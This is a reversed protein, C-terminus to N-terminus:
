YLPCHVAGPSAAEAWAPVRELLSPDSLMSTEPHSPSHWTEIARSDFGGASSAVSPLVHKAKATTSRFTRVDFLLVMM